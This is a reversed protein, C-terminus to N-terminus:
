AARRRRRTRGETKPEAAAAKEIDERKYARTMNPDEAPEDPEDEDEEQEPEPEPTQAKASRTRRAPKEEPVDDQEPEDEEALDEAAVGPGDMTVWDVFEFEPVYTKGWQKHPYSDSELTVIPVIKDSGSDLQKEIKDLLTQMANAGGVSSPKYIVETGEDEGSVCKLRVTTAAKWPWGHDPLKTVDVPEATMPAYVEGLLENKKKESADYNTWCVFGHKISLPNIAWQSGEEVELNEQGYVWVGDKGLRLIPDTSSAPIAQRTNQIGRKLGALAAIAGSNKTTVKKSM